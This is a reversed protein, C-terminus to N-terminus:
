GSSTVTGAHFGSYGGGHFCKGEFGEKRVRQVPKTLIELSFISNFRIGPYLLGINLRLRRASM